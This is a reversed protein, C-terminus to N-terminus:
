VAALGGLDTPVDCEGCEKGGFCVLQGSSNVACTHRGASVAVVAGVDTPVDCQGYANSGFCVLQGSSKVACTRVSGASAAVVAGLDTPLDCQKFRNWGFCVVQGSSKVACTHHHGASVAVVAGLDTPVDCRGYTNDGFCVLQGSSNVACTHYQGGSVAVVAGLDTPVDCEKFRNSGFCVLQGGSKVACTHFSGTSVAVTESHMPLDQQNHANLGFCVLQTDPRVAGSQRNSISAGSKYGEVLARKSGSPKRVHQRSLVLVDTAIWSTWSLIALRLAVRCISMAQTLFRVEDKEHRGLIWVCGECIVGPVEGVVRFAVRVSPLARNLSYLKAGLSEEVNFGVRFRSMSVDPSALQFHQLDPSRNLKMPRKM